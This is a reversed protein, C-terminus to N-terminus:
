RRGPLDLATPDLSAARLADDWHNFDRERTVLGRELTLLQALEIDLEIGSAPGHVRTRGLVILSDALDVVLVPALEQRDWADLIEVIVNAMEARGRAAGPVGLAQFGADAEYLVDPSYRLLMLEFDRRQAAAWGSVVARRVFWRRLRMDPRLFRRVIGASARYIGPFRVMMQEDPSRHGRATIPVAISTVVPGRGAGSSPTMVCAYDGLPIERRERHPPVM